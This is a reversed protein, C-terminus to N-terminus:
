VPPAKVTLVSCPAEHVLREATTGLLLIKLGSRGRTGLVALDAGTDILHGIVGDTASANIRFASEANSDPGLKNELFARYEKHAVRERTAEMATVETPPFPEIMSGALLSPVHVHLVQLTAGEAETVKQAVDIARGSTESFDVCAVVKRFPGEHSRRVLLVDCPAKRICKAAVAGPHGRGTNFGRSGLVLLQAKHREVAAMLGDFPHGIVAETSAGHEKGLTEEVWRELRAGAQDIVRSESIGTHRILDDVVGRDLIHVATLGCHASGARLRAAERVAQLSSPSFDVGVVIQNFGSM